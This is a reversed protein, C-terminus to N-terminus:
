YLIFHGWGVHEVVGMDALGRLIALVGVVIGIGGTIWQGGKGIGRLWGKARMGFWLAPSTILAFMLGNVAGVLPDGELALASFVFLTQGCPLLITFFGFLFAPMPLNRSMLFAFRGSLAGTKRALFRYGPYPLNFLSFLGLIALVLGFGLSAVAGIQFKGLALNIVAGIEGALLGAMSYAAARGLFYLYRYPHQGLLMVLPGCMGLCHLNGLLYLPFLTIFARM